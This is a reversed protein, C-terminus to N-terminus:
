QANIWEAVEKLSNCACIYEARSVCKNADLEVYSLTFYMQKTWLNTDEAIEVTKGNKKLTIHIFSSNSNKCFRKELEKQIAMVKNAM